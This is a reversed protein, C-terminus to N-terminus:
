KVASRLGWVEVYCLVRLICFSVAHALDSLETEVDSSFGLKLSNYRKHQCFPIHKILDVGLPHHADM